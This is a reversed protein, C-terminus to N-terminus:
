VVAAEKLQCPVRRLAGALAAASVIVENMQEGGPIWLWWRCNVPNPMAPILLVRVAVRREM